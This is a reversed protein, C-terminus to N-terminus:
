SAIKLVLLRNHVCVATAILIYMLSYVHLKVLSRKTHHLCSSRLICPQSTCCQMHGIPLLVALVSTCVLRIGGSPCKCPCCCSTIPLYQSGCQFTRLNPSQNASRPVMFFLCLVQLFAARDVFMGGGCGASNGVATIGNFTANTVSQMAIAGGNTGINNTFSTGTVQLFVSCARYGSANM